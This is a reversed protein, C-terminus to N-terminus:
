PLAPRSKVKTCSPWPLLFGAAAAWMHPGACPLCPVADRCDGGGVWRYCRRSRSPMTSSRSCRASSDTTAARTAVMVQQPDLLPYPPSSRLTLTQLSLQRTPLQSAPHWGAARWCVMKESWGGMAAGLVTRCLRMYREGNCGGFENYFDDDDGGDDGGGGGNFVSKGIGGGGMGDDLKPGTEKLEQKFSIKSRQMTASGGSSGLGKGMAATPVMLAASLADQRSGEREQLRACLM